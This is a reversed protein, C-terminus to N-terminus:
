EHFQSSLLNFPLILKLINDSFYQMNLNPTCELSCSSSLFICILTSYDSVKLHVMKFVTDYNSNYDYNYNSNSDYNDSLVPKQFLFSRCDNGSM